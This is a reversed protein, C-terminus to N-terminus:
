NIAIILFFRLFLFNSKDHRFDSNEVVYLNMKLPIQRTVCDVIWSTVTDVNLIKPLIACLKKKLLIYQLCELKLVKPFYKTFNKPWFNYLYM